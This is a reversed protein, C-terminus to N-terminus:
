PWCVVVRAALVPLIYGKGPAESPLTGDRGGNELPELGAVARRVEEKGYVRYPRWGQDRQGQQTRGKLQEISHWVLFFPVGNGYHQFLRRSANMIQEVLTRNTASGNGTSYTRWIHNFAALAPSSM